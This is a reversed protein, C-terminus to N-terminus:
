PPGDHGVIVTREADRRRHAKTLSLLGIRSTCRRGCEPCDYKTTTASRIATTAARHRSERAENLRRTRAEKFYALGQKTHVRWKERVTTLTEINESPINCSVKNIITLLYFTVYSRLFSFM